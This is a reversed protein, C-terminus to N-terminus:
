IINKIKEYILLDPTSSNIVEKQFDNVESVIENNYKFWNGSMPDRCYAVICKKESEWFSIITGILKYNCGLNKLEIYNSLDLYERFNLKINFNPQKPKNLIIFLVEPGTTLDTRESFYATTKCFKCYMVDNGIMYNIKRYYEFCDYIYVEKNNVFNINNNNCSDQQSNVMMNNYHKQQNLIYNKFENNQSMLFSNFQAKSNLSSNQISSIYDNYLMKINNMYNYFKNQIYNFDNSYNIMNMNNDKFRFIEELPFVLYFYKQFNFMQNNCNSCQTVRCNTAFFLDSIISNNNRSFEQIYYDFISKKDNQIMENFNDNENKEAKNLEKHLKMIIFQIIDKIDNSKDGKFLPSIKSLKNKFDEPSYYNQNSHILNDPWLNDILIKFSVLLNNDNNKNKTVIDNIQPNYKFFEVLKEIHSFCQLTSNMYCAGEINQLGIKPCSEFNGKLYNSVKNNNDNNINSNNNNDNKIITGITESNNNVIESNNNLFNLNNLYEDLNSVIEQIHMNRNNENNYILIYEVIFYNYYPDLIGILSVIKNNLHNPMNIIIKGNNFICKILYINCKIPNQIFLNLINKDIIEFNEYILLSDNQKGEINDYYNLPILSPEIEYDNKIYIKNFKKNLYEKLINQDLLNYCDNIQKKDNYNEFSSINELKENLEDYIEKYGIDIRIKNIFEENILYYEEFKRNNKIKIQKYYLYLSIINFLNENLNLQTINRKKENKNNNNSKNIDLNQSNNYLKNKVENKNSNNDEGNRKAIVKNHENSDNNNVKKNKIYKEKIGVNNNKPNILNKKKIYEEIKKPDVKYIKYKKKNISINNIEKRKDILKFLDKLGLKILDENFSKSFGIEKPNFLYEIIFNGDEKIQGIEYFFEDLEKFIIFIKQNGIICNGNLVNSLEIDQGKILIFVEYNIIEFDNIFKLCLKNDEYKVMKYNWEKENEKEMEEILKNKNKNNIYIKDIIDDPLKSIIEDIFKSNRLEEKSEIKNDKIYNLIKKKKKLINYIIKYNYFEKYKAMVNKKIFIFLNDKDKFNRPTEYSSSSNKQYIGEQFCFLSYLIKIDNKIENVKENKM